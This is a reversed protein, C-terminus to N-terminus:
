GGVGIMMSGLVQIEINMDYVRVWSERSYRWWSLFEYTWVNFESHSEGHRTMRARSKLSTQLQSSWHDTVVALMPFGRPTSWQNNLCQLILLLLLLLRIVQVLGWTIDCIYQVVGCVLQLIRESRVLTGLTLLESLVAFAEETIKMLEQKSKSSM